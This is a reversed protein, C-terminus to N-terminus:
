PKADDPLVPAVPMPRAVTGSPPPIRAPPPQRRELMFAIPLMVWVPVPEGGVTAPKFRMMGAVKVAAAAFDPHVPVETTINSRDASGDAQVLMRIVVVGEERQRRRERPYNQNVARALISRNLLEPQVEVDALEYVRRRQASDAAPPPGAPNQAHAPTAALAAAILLAAALATGYRHWVAIMM